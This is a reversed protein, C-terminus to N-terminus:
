VLRRSAPDLRRLDELLTELGAGELGDWRREDWLIKLKRAIGAVSGAMADLVREGASLQQMRAEDVGAGSAEALALERESEYLAIIAEAWEAREAALEAESRHTTEAIDEGERVMIARQIDGLVKCHWRGPAQTTYMEEGWLQELKTAVAELAPAPTTMLKRYADYRITEFEIRALCEDHDDFAAHIDDAVKLNHLAAQWDSAPISHTTNAM